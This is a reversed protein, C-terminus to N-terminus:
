APAAVSIPECRANLCLGTTLSFDFNHALCRLVLGEPAEDIVAGEALDEGSHPCYRTVEFAREGSSLTVTANPDRKDYDEIARLAEADAHKLLGFLYTGDADPAHEILLRRSLFLDEWRIEGSLVAELWRAEVGFTYQPVQQSHPTGLDVDWVGGDAGSVDFRVKMTIRELFYPSLRGLRVFHEKFREALGSGAGPDPHAAWVEAIEQARSSAYADLHKSYAFGKWHPDRIVDHTTPAIRVSDGPFMRLTEAPLEGPECIHQNHQALTPDLFGAPGAYPMVLRPKVSRVLRKVARFRPESADLAILDLPGGVEVMARRTQSLSLQADNCHLVSVGEAVILFAARHDAPSQEPIATLWDGRDNLPLREWAAVEVIEKVGAACLRDRFASSPYEPIVVRVGDSLASLFALDMHDLHASSVAVWEADWLGPVARLHSNDPFPFWAGLYAGGPSVWPDCLVRLNQTQLRLGAHGTSGILPGLVPEDQGM